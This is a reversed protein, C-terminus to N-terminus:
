PIPTLPPSGDLFAQVNDMCLQSMARRTDHTASAQHPQLILKDELALFGEPLNPEDAFVDLAAAGLRGEELATVLAEDDVTLGRGVNVLIGEPGIANMVASDVLHRTGEGGPTIVIFYDAWNGLAVADEFYPYTLDARQSRNHYGIAMGFAECRRAIAMGIRGLGLIGLRKGYVRQGYAMSGEKPWRGRRVYRDGAVVRRASALLLAVGYDAVEETLVDPTNTVMIGRNRAAEVDVGEYGVGCVAIIGLQPLKDMLDESFVARTVAARCTSAIGALLADPDKAEWLKHAACFGAVEDLSYSYLPRAFLVDPKDATMSAELFPNERKDALAKAEKIM